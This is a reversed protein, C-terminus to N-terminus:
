RNEDQALVIFLLLRSTCIGFTGDLVLQSCHAYKWAAANMDKTSICVQFRESVESRTSYHFIANSIEHQFNPSLPDLWDHVNYEPRWRVDVGNQRSFKRYLTVNDSPLFQYQINATKPDFSDMGRYAQKELIERNLRQIATISCCISLWLCCCNSSSKAWRAGKELQDLAVEYVHDHLPVTPLRKLVSSKCGENHVLYGAIRSIQGNSQLETIEVHALCATFDFPVRRETDKTPVPDGKKKKDRERRANSDYGCASWLFITFKYM